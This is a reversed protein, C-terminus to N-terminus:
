ETSDSSSSSNDADSAVEKRACCKACLKAAYYIVVGLGTMALSFVVSAFYYTTKHYGFAQLSSCKSEGPVGPRVPSWFPMIEVLEEDSDVSRILVAVTCLLLQLM